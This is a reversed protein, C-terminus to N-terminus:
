KKNYEAIIKKSEKLQSKLGVAENQLTEVTKSLKDVKSQIAELESSM